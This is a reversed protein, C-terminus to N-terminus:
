GRGTIPISLAKIVTKSTNHRIIVKDLDTMMHKTKGLIKFFFTEM